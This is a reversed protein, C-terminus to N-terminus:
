FASEGTLADVDVPASFGEPLQLETPAQRVQEDPEVTGEMDEEDIAIGQIELNELFITKLLESKKEFNADDLNLGQFDGYISSVGLDIQKMAAVKKLAGETDTLATNLKRIRAELIEVRQKHAEQEENIAKDRERSILDSLMESIAKDLAGLGPLASPGHVALASRTEESVLRKFIDRIHVEMQDFSTMSFEAQGAKAHRENEEDLKSISAELESKLTENLRDVVSKEAKVKNHERLLADFEKKAELELQDREKDSIREGRRELVNDIAVTVLGKIDKMEMMRVNKRGQKALKRLTIQKSNEQVLNVLNDDSSNGKPGPARKTADMGLMAAAEEPSIAELEESDRSLSSAQPVLVAQPRPTSRSDMMELLEEQSLAPLEESDRSLHETPTNEITTGGGFMEAAEAPSIAELEEEDGQGPNIEPIPAAFPNDVSISIPQSPSAEFTPVPADFEEQASESSLPPIPPPLDIDLPGPVLDMSILPESSADSATANASGAEGRMQDIETLDIVETEAVRDVEAADKNSEIPAEKPKDSGPERAGPMRESESRIGDLGTAGFLWDSKKESM